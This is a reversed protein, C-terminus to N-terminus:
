TRMRCPGGRGAEEVALTRYPAPPRSCASLASRTPTASPHSLRCSAGKRRRAQRQRRARGAHLCIIAGMDKTLKPTRASIRLARRLPARGSHSGANASSLAARHDPVQPPREPLAHHLLHHPTCGPSSKQPPRQAIPKVIAQSSVHYLPQRTTLTFPLLIQAVCTHCCRSFRRPKRM